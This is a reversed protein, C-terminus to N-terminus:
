CSPPPIIAKVVVKRQSEPELAAALACDARHGGSAYTPRGCSPCAPYIHRDEEKWEVQRLAARTADRDAELQDIQDCLEDVFRGKDPFTLTRLRDREEKTM